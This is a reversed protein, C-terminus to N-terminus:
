SNQRSLIYDLRIEESIEFWTTENLIINYKRKVKKGEDEFDISIVKRYAELENRTLITGIGEKKRLLEATIRKPLIKSDFKVDARIVPLEDAKITIKRLFQTGSLQNQEVIELSVKRDFVDRLTREVQGVPADLIKKVMPDLTVAM